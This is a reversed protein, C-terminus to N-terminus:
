VWVWVRGSPGMPLLLAAEEAEGCLIVRAPIRAFM